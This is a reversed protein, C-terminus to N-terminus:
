LFLCPWLSLFFLVCRCTDFLFLGFHSISPPSPWLSIKCKVVSGTLQQQWQKRSSLECNRLELASRCALCVSVHASKLLGSIVAISQCSLLRKRTLFWAMSGWVWIRLPKNAWIVPLSASSSPASFPKAPSNKTLKDQSIQKEKLLCQLTGNYFLMHSMETPLCQHPPFYVNAIFYCAMISWIHQQIHATHHACYM